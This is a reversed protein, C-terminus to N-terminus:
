TQYQKMFGNFDIGSKTIAQAGDTTSMDAGTITITEGSVGMSGALMVVALLWLKFLKNQKM